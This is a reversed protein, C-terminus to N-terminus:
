IPRYVMALAGTTRLTLRDTGSGNALGVASRNPQLFQWLLSAIDLRNM